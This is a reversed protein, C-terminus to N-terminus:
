SRVVGAEDHGRVLVLAGAVHDVPPDRGRELLIIIMIRRRRIILLIIM